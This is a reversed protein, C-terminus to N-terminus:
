PIGFFNPSQVLVGATETSCALALQAIDIRGQPCPVELVEIQQGAAYAALVARYQPHVSQAVLLQNRGTHACCVLGAEAFATAGDYMSANAVDMGLLEAAMTQYEFTAQLMGQSLEPQYPTYSTSFESRSVVAEVVSPIYHEYSGAGLLRIWRGPDPHQQALAQMHRQLALEPLPPPLQLPRQLRVAGPIDAFLEETSTIGLTSLM